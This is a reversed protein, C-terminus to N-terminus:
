PYDFMVLGGRTNCRLNSKSLFLVGTELSQIHRVDDTAHVQFSSYRGMTTGFFSTVHGKLLFTFPSFVFLCFNPTLTFANYYYYYYTYKM